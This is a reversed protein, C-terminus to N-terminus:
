KKKISKIEVTENPVDGMGNRKGTRVVKIKDVVDMGETVRGFVCYGVGDRASAKNLMDNDVVNIFFQSTASDPEPTRAMALTGRLNTLGNASENKISEKTKKQNLDKDFGGGQIMFGDIVRHFITGDYHQDDVYAMFNKVTIPAKDAFLEAKITGHNTEIIVVPNGGAADKPEPAAKLAGAALMALGVFCLALLKVTMAIEVTSLNDSVIASTSLNYSEEELDSHGIRVIRKEM